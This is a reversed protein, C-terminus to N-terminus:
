GARSPSPSSSAPRSWAGIRTTGACSRRSASSAPPQLARRDAPLLPRVRGGRPRAPHRRAARRRRSVADHMTPAYLEVADAGGRRAEHMALEANRLVQMTNEQVSGSASGDSVAIGASASIAVSRGGIEYPAGLVQVLRRALALAEGADPVDELLAAFRDGGVRALTDSGRLVGSLRSAVEELLRDGAEHGFSDVVGEFDDLGLMVVAQLSLGRYSRTFAHNIRGELLTRNALGTLHDHFSRHELERELNRRDSVDRANLVFGQLHADDVHNRIRAEAVLTSGDSRRLSWDIEASDGPRDLLSRLLRHTAQADPPSLAADLREGLMTGPPRGLLREVTEPYALVRTDADIVTIIDSSAAVLARFRRQSELTTQSSAEAREASRQAAVLRRFLLALILASLTFLVAVGFRENRANADASARFTAVARDLRRDVTVFRPLTKTASWTAAVRRRGDAYASFGREAVEAYDALASRLNAKGLFGHDGTAQRRLTGDVEAQIERFRRRGRPVSIEGARVATSVAAMRVLEAQARSLERLSSARDRSVRQTQVPVIATMLIVLGAGFLLANGRWPGADDRVRQRLRAAVCVSIAALTVGLSVLDLERVGLYAGAIVVLPSVLAIAILAGPQRLVQAAGSPRRATMCRAAPHLAAAAWCVYALMWGIGTGTLSAVLGLALLVGAGNTGRASLALRLAAGLLLLELAPSAFTLAVDVTNARTGELAPRISFEYVPLAAAVTLLLAELSRGRDPGPDRLRGARVAALALAPYGLLFLLHRGTTLGGLGDGVVWLGVGAAALTWADRGAGSLHRSRWALAACCAVGVLDHDLRAAGAPLLGYAALCALGLVLSALHLPTASSPRACVM